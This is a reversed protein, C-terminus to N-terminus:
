THGNWVQSLYYGSDLIAIDAGVGAKGADIGFYLLPDEHYMTVLSNPITTIVAYGLGSSATALNLIILSFYAAKANSIIKSLELRSSSMATVAMSVTFIGLGLQYSHKLGLMKTV